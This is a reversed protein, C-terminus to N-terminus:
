NISRSSATNIAEYFDSIPIPPLPTEPGGALFSFQSATSGMWEQFVVSREPPCLLFRGDETEKFQLVSSKLYVTKAGFRLQYIFGRGIRRHKHLAQRSIGLITATEAASIYESIPRSQLIESIRQDRAQGIKKATLYPFLYDGCEECEFYEVDYVVLFGVHDDAM